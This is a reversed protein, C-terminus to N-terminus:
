GPQVTRLDFGLRPSIKREWGPWGGPCNTSIKGRFIAAPVHHQGGGGELESNAFPNFLPDAEDTNNDSDIIPGTANWLLPNVALSLLNVSCSKAYDSLWNVNTNAVRRRSVSEIQV